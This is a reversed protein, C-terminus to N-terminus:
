SMGGMGQEEPGDSLLQELPIEGKYAIYGQEAFQGGDESVRDAGYQTYNYFEELNPDYEYKGSERIMYKGLEEPSRVNPIYDFQDLNEAIVRVEDACNPKALQIAANIKEMEWEDLYKIAYCMGNLNTLYEREFALANQVSDPLNNVDVRFGCWVDQSIGARILARAIQSHSAPLDLFTDAQGQEAPLLELTLLPPTYSFHPFTRGQYLQELKMGNEYLVGYPTVIGAGSDILLRATEEGDLNDLEDQTAGAHTTVFHRRGIANLDSFDVIVTAQQCCFTLNILDRIKTLSLKHTAAQFQAIENEDFSDLRKTLYDLEDFNVEQGELLKLVSVDSEIKEIYCDAKLADGIEMAKLLDFNHEYSDMEIPFPITAVGYEPHEKSGIVARLYM